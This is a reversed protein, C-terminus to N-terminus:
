ATNQVCIIVSDSCRAGAASIITLIFNHENLVAGDAMGALLCLAQGARLHEPSQRLPFQADTSMTDLYSGVPHEWFPPNLYSTPGGLDSM